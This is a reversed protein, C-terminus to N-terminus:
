LIIMRKEIHHPRCLWEVLLPQSYDPHHMELNDETGCVQCPQKGLRGKNLEYSAKLRAQDKGEAKHIAHYNRNYENHKERNEINWKRKIEKWKEPDQAKYKRLYQIVSKKHRARWRRMYLNNKKRQEPTIM